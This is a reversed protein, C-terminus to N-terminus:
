SGDVVEMVVPMGKAPRRSVWRSQHYRLKVTHHIVKRQVKFSDLTERCSFSTNSHYTFTYGNYLVMLLM